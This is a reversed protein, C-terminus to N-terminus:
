AIWDPCGIRAQQLSRLVVAERSSKSLFGFGAMANRVREKWPVHHERKLFAAIAGPGKGLTVRAVNRDPHGCIIISPMELFSVPATLGQQQLFTQYRTNVELFAMAHEGRGPRCNPVAPRDQTAGSYNQRRM